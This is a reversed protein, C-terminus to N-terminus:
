QRSRAGAPPPLSFVNEREREPIRVNAKIPICPGLDARNTLHTPLYTHHKPPNHPAISAGQRVMFCVWPGM